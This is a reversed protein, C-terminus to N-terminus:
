ENVGIIRLGGTAKGKFKVSPDAVLKIKNGPWDKLAGFLRVLAARNTSNLTLAKNAGKFVIVPKRLTKASNPIQINDVQVAEITLLQETIGALAFDIFGLYNKDEDFMDKPTAQDKAINRM